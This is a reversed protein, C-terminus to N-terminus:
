CENKVKKYEDRSRFLLLTMGVVFLITRLDFKKNEILNFSFKYIGYVIFPVILWIIFLWIRIYIHNKKMSKGGEDGMASMNNKKINLRFKFFLAIMGIILYVPQMSIKKYVLLNYLFDIIGFLIWFVLLWKIFFWFRTFRHNEEM